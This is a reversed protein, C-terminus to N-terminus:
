IDKSDLLFTVPGDNLITVDMHAQFVGTQVEVVYTTLREVFYDYLRHAQEPLAAEDFSPRRGKTCDGYLTFQSIVLVAGRTDIVSRNMKGREDPFMRLHIVKYILRDADAQSDSKAIGLFLLIGRGISGALLGDVEVSARTARQLVVRM